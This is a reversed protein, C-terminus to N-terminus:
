KQLQKVQMEAAEIQDRTMSTSCAKLEAEVDKAGQLQALKLWKYAEVYDQKVGQGQRYMKGLSTQAPVNGQQAAKLFWAAAEGWDQRGTLGEQYISGLLDQAESSGQQAAQRFLRTAM